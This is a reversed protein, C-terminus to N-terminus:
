RGPAVANAAEVAPADEEMQVRVNRLTIGEFDLRPLTLKGTLPPLPSAPPAKLWALMGPVRAQADLRADGMSLGVALPDSFDPAGRYALTLPFPGHAVNLPTPLAPWGEPWSALTGTFDAAFRAGFVAKAVGALRPLPPKGELNLTDAAVTFGDDAKGFHGALSHSAALPGSARALAVGGVLTYDSAPGATALHANGRAHADTDGQVFRLRYALDAPQGAALHPLDLALERLQWGDGLVTGDAVALGKTLTPLEFPAKPRAALWGKLGAVDLVPEDLQLRTIVVPGGRVTAWPLSVDLRKARLVVKGTAPDTVVLNPVQLRPEPKFAYEPTGAFAFDLKFQKGLRSLVTTTLRQPELQRDVFWWGLGLLLALVGLVIWRRRSRAETAM